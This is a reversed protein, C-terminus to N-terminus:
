EKGGSSVRNGAAFQKQFLLFIGLPIVATVIAAVAQQDLNPDYTGAIRALLVTLSIENRLFLMPLLLTNWCWLFQLIGCAAIPSILNPLVVQTFTRIPGCGDIKAAEILEKPFDELFSKVLFVSWAYSLGVFPIVVAWMNDLLGVDRWLQFLPIIVVQQPLVFANIIVILWLRRMPFRMYHFTYAAAPATIMTLLTATTTIKASVWLSDLLPYTSWVTKWAQLSFQNEGFHWWGRSISDTTQLSTAIIGILPIIWICGVIGVLIIIWRPARGVM